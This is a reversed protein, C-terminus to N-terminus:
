RGPDAAPGALPGRHPGPDAVGQPPLGPAAGPHDEHGAVGAGGAAAAQLRSRDGGCHSQPRLQALPVQRRPSGGQCGRSLGRAAFWWGDGAAPARARAQDQAQGLARSEQNPLARLQRRASRWSGSCDSGCAQDRIAEELNHCIVFRDGRWWWKRSRWTTRWKITAGPGLSRSTPRQPTVGCSRESSTTTRFRRCAPM